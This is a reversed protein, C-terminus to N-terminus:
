GDLRRGLVAGVEGLALDGQSHAAAQRHGVVSGASEALDGPELLPRFPQSLLGSMGTIEPPLTPWGPRMRNSSTVYVSAPAAPVYVPETVTGPLEHSSSM